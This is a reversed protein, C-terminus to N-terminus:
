GVKQNVTVTTTVSVDVPFIRALAIVLNARFTNGLCTWLKPFSPNEDGSIWKGITSQDHYGLRFAADKKPIDSMELAWEIAMGIARKGDMGLPQPDAKAEPRLSASLFKRHRAPLPASVTQAM